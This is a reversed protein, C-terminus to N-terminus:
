FHLRDGIGEMSDFLMQELAATYTNEKNTKKKVFIVYFFGAVTHRFLQLAVQSNCRTLHLVSGHAERFDPRIASPTVGKM